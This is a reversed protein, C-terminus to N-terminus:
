AVHAQKLAPLVVTKTFEELTTPTTTQPSRPIEDKMYGTEIAHYMELFLDAMQESAGNNILFSYTQEPTVQVYQVPHNINEGIIRAAEEFSYDRPGHLPAIRLGSWGGDGLARAAVEAIDRTAIMPFTASGSLPLYVAGLEAISDLSMMFNEMFYTPRLIMLNWASRRLIQEADHLGTVPGCGNELHAGISSLFVVRRIKNTRIAYAANEALKRVYARFSTEDLKPPMMWFLADVHATARRVYNVDELNGQVVIAGRAREENLKEPKRALLILEHGGADQLNRVIQKGIHGTPGTIAIKM